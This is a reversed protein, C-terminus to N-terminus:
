LRHCTESILSPVSHILHNAGSSSIMIAILSYQTLSLSWRSHSPSYCHSPPVRAWVRTVASCSCSCEQSGRPLTLGWPIDNTHTFIGKNLCWCGNRVTLPAWYGLWLLLLALTLLHTDGWILDWWQINSWIQSDGLSEAAEPESDQTQARTEAESVTRSCPWGRASAPCHRSSRTWCWSSTWTKEPPSQCPSILELLECVM